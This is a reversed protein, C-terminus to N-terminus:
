LEEAPLDAICDRVLMDWDISGYGSHEALCEGARRIAPIPDEGAELLEGGRWESYGIAQGGNGAQRCGYVLTRGDAHQRVRLWAEVNAQCEHEGSYGASHAICPWDTDQIRVPARDTLTITRAKTPENSM